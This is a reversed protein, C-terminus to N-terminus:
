VSASAAARKAEYASIADQHKLTLGIDDMGQLLFQRRHEDLEFPISLGANDSIV